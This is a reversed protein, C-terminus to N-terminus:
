LVFTNAQCLYIVYKLRPPSNSKIHPPTPSHLSGSLSTSVTCDGPCNEISNYFKVFRARETASSPFIWREHCINLEYYGDSSPADTVVSLCKTELNLKDNWIAWVLNMSSWAPWKNKFGAFDIISFCPRSEGFGTWCCFQCNKSLGQTKEPLSACCM